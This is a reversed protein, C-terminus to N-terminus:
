SEPVWSGIAVGICFSVGLIAVKIEGCFEGDCVTGGLVCFFFRRNLLLISSGNMAEGISFPEVSFVCM